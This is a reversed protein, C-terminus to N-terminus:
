CHPEFYPTYDDFGCYDWFWDRQGKTLDKPMTLNWTFRLVDKNTMPLGQLLAQGTAKEVLCCVRNTSEAKSDDWDEPFNEEWGEPSDQGQSCSATLAIAAFLVVVRIAVPM